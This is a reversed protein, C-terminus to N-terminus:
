WFAAVRAVAAESKRHRWACRRHGVICDIQEARGAGVAPGPNLALSKSYDAIAENTRDLEHQASGCIDDRLRPLRV